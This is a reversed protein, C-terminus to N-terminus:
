GRVLHALIKDLGRKKLLEKLEAEFTESSAKENVALLVNVLSMTNECFESIPM